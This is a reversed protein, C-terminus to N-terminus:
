AAILTSESRKHYKQKLKNLVSSVSTEPLKIAKAVDRNSLGEYKLQVVRLELSNNCTDKIMNWTEREELSDVPTEYKESTMLPIDNITPYRRFLRHSEKENKLAVKKQEETLYNVNIKPENSFIENFKDKKNSMDRHLEDMNIVRRFRITRKKRANYERYLISETWKFLYQELKKDLTAKKTNCRSSNFREFIKLRNFEVLLNDYSEEVTQFRQDIYDPFKTYFLFLFCRRIIDEYTDYNTWFKKVIRVM